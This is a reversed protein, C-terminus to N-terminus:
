LILCSTSARAVISMVDRSATPPNVACRFGTANRDLNQGTPADAYDKISSGFPVARDDCFSGATSRITSVSAWKPGTSAPRGCRGALDVGPCRRPTRCQNMGHNDRRRHARNRGPDIMLDISLGVADV